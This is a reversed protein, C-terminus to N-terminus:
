IQRSLTESVRGTMSGSSRAFSVALARLLGRCSSAYANVPHNTRGFYDTGDTRKCVQGPGPEDENTSITTKLDGLELNNSM